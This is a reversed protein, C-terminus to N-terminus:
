TKQWIALEQLQAKSRGAAINFNRSGPDCRSGGTSVGNSSDKVFRLIEQRFKFVTFEGAINTLRFIVGRFTKQV